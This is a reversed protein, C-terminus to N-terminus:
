RRLVAKYGVKIGEDYAVDFAPLGKAWQEPTMAGDFHRSIPPPPTIVPHPLDAVSLPFTNPLKGSPNVTGFLVNAVANAGDPGAYRLGRRNCGSSRVRGVAHNCSQRVRGCRHHASQRCRSRPSGSADQDHPLVALTKLDM